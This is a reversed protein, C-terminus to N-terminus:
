GRYVMTGAVRAPPYVARGPPKREGRMTFLDAVSLDFQRLIRDAVSPTLVRAGSLVNHIHSQSVGLQRAFGRETMEGNHVRERAYVLLRDLLDEFSM